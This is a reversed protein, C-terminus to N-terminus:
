EWINDIVISNFMQYFLPEIKNYRENVSSSSENPKNVVMFQVLVFYKKYIFVYNLNHSYFYRNMRTASNTFEISGAKLGEIKLNPNSSIYSAGNPLITKLGETTFFENLEQSTFEEEIKNVLLISLVYNDSQAFKRIVHPREGEISKWSRPYKYHIKLGQSKGLGNSSYKETKGSNYENLSKTEETQSYVNSLSFLFLTFIMLTQKM